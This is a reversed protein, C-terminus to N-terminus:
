VCAGNRPTERFGYISIHSGAFSLQIEFDSVIHGIRGLKIVAAAEPTAIIM